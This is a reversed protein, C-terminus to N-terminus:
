RIIKLEVRRNKARGVATTNSAVPQSEGESDASVQSRLLGQGLLYDMVVNARRQGLIENQDARGKDDTHGVLAVRGGGAKISRAVGRLYDEIESNDLKRTSNYPFYIVASAGVNGSGSSSAGKDDIALRYREGISLNHGVSLNSSTTIRDMDAEAFLAKIAEARCAGLNSFSGDYQEGNNYLGVVSLYSADGMQRVLSDRYPEWDEGVSVECSDDNFCLLGQACLSMAGIASGDDVAGIAGDSCCTSYDTCMKWGLLLWLALVILIGLNRM